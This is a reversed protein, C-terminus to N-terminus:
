ITTGHGVQPGPHVETVAKIHEATIRGDSPVLPHHVHCLHLHGHAFRGIRHCGTQHCEIKRYAAVFASVLALLSVATLIEMWSTIVVPQGSQPAQSIFHLVGFIVDHGRTVM